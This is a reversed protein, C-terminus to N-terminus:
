VASACLLIGVSPGFVVKMLSEFQIAEQIKACHLMAAFTEEPEVIIAKLFMVVVVFSVVFSLHMALYFMQLKKSGSLSFIFIALMLKLWATGTLASEVLNFSMLGM